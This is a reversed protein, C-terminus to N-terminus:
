SRHAGETLRKRLTASSLQSLYVTQKGNEACVVFAKPLEYTISVVQGAKEAAALFERTHRSLTANDTDFIGVVTDTRVVTEQGLHLYM